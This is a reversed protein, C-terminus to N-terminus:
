EKSKNTDFVTGYNPLCEWNLGQERMWSNMQTSYNAQVSDLRLPHIYGAWILVLMM